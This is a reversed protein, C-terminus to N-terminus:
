SKGFKFSNKFLIKTIKLNKYITDLTFKFIIILILQFLSLILIM